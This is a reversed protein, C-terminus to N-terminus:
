PGRHKTSAGRCCNGRRDLASLGAHRSEKFDNCRYLPSCRDGSLLRPQRARRSDLATAFHISKDCMLKGDRLLRAQDKQVELRFRYPRGVEPLYGTLLMSARHGVNQPCTRFVVWARDAKGRDALRTMTWEMNFEGQNEATLLYRDGQNQGGDDAVILNEAFRYTADKRGWRAPRRDFRVDDYRYHYHYHYYHLFSAASGNGMEHRLLWGMCPERHRNWAVLAMWDPRLPDRDSDGMAMYSLDPFAVYLRTPFMLRLSKPADVLDTPYHCGEVTTRDGPMELGYLDVGCRLMAETWPLLAAMVFQHYGESREWFLGDDSMAGSDAVLDYAEVIKVLWVAEYLSSTFMRCGRRKRPLRDYHDAYALLGDRVWAAFRADGTFAYALGVDVLQSPVGGFAADGTATIPAFPRAALSRGQDRMGKLCQMAVPLHRAKRLGKAVEEATLLLYPHRTPIALKQPLSPRDGATVSAGIATGLLALAAVVALRPLIM